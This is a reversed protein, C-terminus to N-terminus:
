QVTVSGSISGSDGGDSEAAREDNSDSLDTHSMASRKDSLDNDSQANDSSNEKLQQCNDHM